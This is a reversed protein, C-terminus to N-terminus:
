LAESACPLSVMCASFNLLRHPLTVKEKCTTKEKSIRWQTTSSWNSRVM